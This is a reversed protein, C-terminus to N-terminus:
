GTASNREHENRGNTSVDGKRKHSNWLENVQQSILDSMSTGLDAALIKLRRHEERGISVAFPKHKQQQLRV